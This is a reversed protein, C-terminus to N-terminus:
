APWPANILDGILGLSKGSMCAKPEALLIDIVGMPLYFEGYQYLMVSHPWQSKSNADKGPVKTAQRVEARISDGLSVALARPSLDMALWADGGHRRQRRM